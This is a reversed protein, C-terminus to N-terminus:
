MLLPTLHTTRPLLFTLLSLAMKCICFYLGIEVASWLEVVGGRSSFVKRGGHNQIKCNAGEEKGNSGRRGEGLCVRPNEGDLKRLDAMFMLGSNVWLGFEFIASLSNYVIVDSLCDVKEKLEWTVNSSSRIDFLRINGLLGFPGGHSVSAM